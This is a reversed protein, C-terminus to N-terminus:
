DSLKPWHGKDDKCTHSTGDLHGHKDYIFICWSHPQGECHEKYNFFTKLQGSSFFEKYSIYEGKKLVHVFKLNGKKDFWKYEGDLLKIKGIQKSSDTTSEMKFDGLGMPQINIGSDYWTYRFFVAKASDVKNWKADLYVCWKGNKKGASDLQNLKETQSFTASCLILMLQTFFIKLKM